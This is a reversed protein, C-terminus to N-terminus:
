SSKPKSISKQSSSAYKWIFLFEEAIADYFASDKIALIYPSRTTGRSVLYPVIVAEKENMVVQYGVDHDKATKVFAKKLGCEKTLFTSWQKPALKVGPTSKHAESETKMSPGLCSNAADMICVKFGESLGNMRSKIANEFSGNSTWGHLSYGLMYVFDRAQEVIRLCDEESQSARDGFTQTRKGLPELEPAFPVSPKTRRGLIAQIAAELSKVYTKHFIAQPDFDYYIIRQDKIDFPPSFGKELLLIVPKAAAQAIALEYFVNPNNGTLVAIVLESSLVREYIQDTIKGPATEHDGRIVEFSTQSGITEFAPKIICDFVTDAHQRDESGEAGIPSIVFCLHNVKSM